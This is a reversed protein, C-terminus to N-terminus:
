KLKIALELEQTIYKEPIQIVQICGDLLYLLYDYENFMHIGRRCCTRNRCDLGIIECNNKIYVCDCQEFKLRTRLCKEAINSKM